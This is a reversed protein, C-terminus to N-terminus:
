FYRCGERTGLRNYRDDYGEYKADSTLKKGEKELKKYMGYNEKGFKTVDKREFM